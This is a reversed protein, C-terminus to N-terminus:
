DTLLQPTLTLHWLSLYIKSHPVYHTARMLEESRRGPRSIRGYGNSIWHQRLSSDKGFFFPVTPRGSTSLRWPVAKLAIAIKRLDFRCVVGNKDASEPVQSQGWLKAMVQRNRRPPCRYPTHHFHQDRQNNGDRCKEFCNIQLARHMLERSTPTWSLIARVRYLCIAM